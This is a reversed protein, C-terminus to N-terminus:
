GLAAAILRANARVMDLYTGADSGPPGLSESHLQVVHVPGAGEAALAEALRTPSSTEAFIAPVDARDVLDALRHLDSASPGALTSGGPIVAGLVRFHYRAAFYGFVEHNTVLVRRPRPVPRLIETVEADLQHLQGVYAESREHLRTADLAPVHDALQDALYTTVEAMRIPDTFFHPDLATTGEGGTGPGLPLPHTGDVATIVEAGDHAAAELADHLGAEFGLGNEVVVEADRLAVVQRASPAFEHPDTGPPMVVEVRADDGVLHEVVDGLISTTVVIRPAGSDGAARGGCGAGVLGAVVLGAAVARTPVTRMALVTRIKTIM